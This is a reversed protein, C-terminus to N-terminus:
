EVLTVAGDEYLALCTRRLRILWRESRVLLFYGRDGVHGIWQTLSARQELPDFMEPLTGSHLHAGHLRHVVYLRDPAIVLLLENATAGLIMAQRATHPLAHRWVIHSARTATLELVSEGSVRYRTGQVELQRAAEFPHAHRRPAHMPRCPGAAHDLMTGQELDLHITAGRTRLRLSHPCIAARPLDAASCHQKANLPLEVTWRAGRRTVDALTLRLTRMPCDRGALLVWRDLTLAGGLVPYDRPPQILGLALRDATMVRLHPPPLYPATLMLPRGQVTIEWALAAAPPVEPRFVPPPIPRCDAPPARLLRVPSSLRAWGRTTRLLLQEGCRLVTTALDAGELLPVENAVTVPVPAPLRLVRAQRTGGDLPLDGLLAVDVAEDGALYVVRSGDIFPLTLTNPARPPAV